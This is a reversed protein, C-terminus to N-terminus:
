ENQRAPIGDLQGPVIYFHLLELKCCLELFHTDPHRDFEIHFDIYLDIPFSIHFLTPKILINLNCDGWIVTVLLNVNSLFNM